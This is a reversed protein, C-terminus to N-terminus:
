TEESLYNSNWSNNNHTDHLASKHSMASRYLELIRWISDIPINSYKWRLLSRPVIKTTSLTSQDSTIQFSDSQIDVNFKMAQFDRCKYISGRCYIFLLVSENRTITWGSVCTDFSAAWSPTPRLDSSSPSQTRDIGWNPNDAPTFCFDASFSPQPNHRANFHFCNSHHEDDMYWKEYARIPYM